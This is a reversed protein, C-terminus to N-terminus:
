EIKDLAADLEDISKIRIVEGKKMREQAEKVRDIFEQKFEPEHIICEISQVIEKCRLLEEYEKATLTINSQM